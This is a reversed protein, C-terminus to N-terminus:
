RVALDLRRNEHRDAGLSRHFCQVGGFQVLQARLDDQSISVVEPQAGAMLQDAIEAAEVLEGGPTFGHERVRTSELHPRQRLHPFNGLLAHTEM